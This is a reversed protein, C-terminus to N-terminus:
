LEIGEKYITRNMEENLLEELKEPSVVNDKPIRITVDSDTEKDPFGDLDLWFMCKRIILEEISHVVWKDEESPLILLFLYAKVTALRRLDDYNKKKLRYSYHDSYETYRTSSSKLQANIQAVFKGGDEWILPKSLYVDVGDDDHPNKSVAIGKIACITELYSISIVEKRNTEIM